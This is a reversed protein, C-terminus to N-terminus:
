MWKKRGPARFRGMPPGLYSKCPIQASNPHWKPTMQFRHKDIQSWIGISGLDNVRNPLIFKGHVCSCVFGCTPDAPARLTRFKM